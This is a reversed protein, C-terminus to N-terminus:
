TRTSFFSFATPNSNENKAVLYERFCNIIIPVYKIGIAAWKFFNMKGKKNAKHQVAMEVEGLLALLILLKQMMLQTITGDITASRKMYDLARNVEGQNNRKLGYRYEVLAESLQEVDKSERSQNRTMKKPTLSGGTKNPPLNFMSHSFESRELVAPIKGYPM